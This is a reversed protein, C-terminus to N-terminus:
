SYTYGIKQQIESLSDPRCNFTQFLFVDKKYIINGKSVHTMSINSVINNYSRVIVNM